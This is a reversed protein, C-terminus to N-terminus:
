KEEKNTIKVFKTKGAFPEFPRGGGTYFKGFFEVYFDALIYSHELLM